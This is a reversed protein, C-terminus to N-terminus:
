RSQFTWSIVTWHNWPFRSPSVGASGCNKSIKFLISSAVYEVGVNGPGNYWSMAFLGCAFNGMGARVSWCVTAVPTEVNVGMVDIRDPWGMTVGLTIVVEVEELETRELRVPM